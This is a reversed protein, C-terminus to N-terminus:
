GIQRIRGGGLANPKSGGYAPSKHDDKDDDDDSYNNGRALSDIM